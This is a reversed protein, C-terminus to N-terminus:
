TPSMVSCTVSGSGDDKERGPDMGKKTTNVVLGREEVRARSIAVSAVIDTVNSRWTLMRERGDGILVGEREDVLRLSSESAVVLELRRSKCRTTLLVGESDEIDPVGESPPFRMWESDLSLGNGGTGLPIESVRAMCVSTQQPNGLRGRLRAPAWPFTDSMLEDRGSPRYLPLNFNSFFMSGDKSHDPRFTLTHMGVISQVGDRFSIILDLIKHLDRHHKSLVFHAGSNGNSHKSVKKICENM